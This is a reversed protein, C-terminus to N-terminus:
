DVVQLSFPPALSAGAWAAVAEPGSWVLLEVLHGIREGAENDAADLRVEHPMLAEAAWRQELAPQGLDLPPGDILLPLVRLRAEGAIALSVRLASGAEM